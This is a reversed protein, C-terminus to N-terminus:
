HLANNIGEMVQYNMFTNYATLAVWHALGIAVKKAISLTKLRRSQMLSSVENYKTGDAEKLALLYKQTLAKRSHSFLERAIFGANLDLSSKVMEALLDPETKPVAGRAKWGELIIGAGMLALVPVAHSLLLSTMWGAIVPKSVLAAQFSFYNARAEELQNRFVEKPTPQAPKVWSVVRARLAAVSTM